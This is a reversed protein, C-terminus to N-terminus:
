SNKIRGIKIEESILENDFAIISTIFKGIEIPDLFTEFKENPNEHSIIKNGMETKIPGPSICFTRVNREKLENHLVRSLGLLAHKSTRYAITNKLGNYAGSSAINIIRGWEKKSMDQSFERCLLFPAKVNLNMCNEYDEISTMHIPKVPFVGACNVLIDITGFEKRVKEIVKNIQNKDRLDATEYSIKINKSISEIESKTDEIKRIDRGVLFLNVDIKAFSKAIEKGLGGSAGTILCNKQSLINKM